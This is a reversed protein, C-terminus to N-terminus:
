DLAVNGFNGVLGEGEVTIEFTLFISFVSDEPGYLFGRPRSMRPDTVQGSLSLSLAWAEPILSLFGGSVRDTRSGTVGDTREWFVIWELARSM